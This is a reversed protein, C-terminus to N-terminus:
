GEAPIATEILERHSSNHVKASGYAPASSAPLSVVSLPRGLLEPLRLAMRPWAGQNVPEEQAWVLEADSPYRSLEARLNEHPVPYLQEVRVIATSNANAKARYDALDYYFKGSCLVVRRVASSNFNAPEGIMPQFAGSTFEATASTAAKARLISKPTFVILPKHRGSLAQWRLLHFYNAPTTPLAVTMNDQACLALFREIRASSHDPGQGEYGHPLLLVVSSKQGWKQEGSSIFEDIITQAGNMFDGFQAEWMVLADPRAVSYGYEFGMAAFESLLSDYVFFRAKGNDLKKLPTYDGGTHRDVLVAHRQGFTGRRTDQGVMRVPRGDQLLSGIALLEGTAWDISDEAVMTARRDLQPKLRPHVTFGEPINVQTDIIQKVADMTIATPVASHNVPREGVEAPLVTGPQAPLGAADRTETFARELQQQYDRLAAEAEEMTLDGRAILSETYLKRVSRRAEILDYMLPQTFSPNDTENHGRRRYCVMDIVVDKRFTERYAFSLKGVRAVAEPDDGNVHFIPAQIMRAVDTAYVSSRSYQPSTTFGVQNNVVIHVTGGTRYGRLQSLNLTEAVVGQGAFAADGHILVPLVTFGDESMDLVDQKARVVGETVPDSAELHSPNAVLSTPIRKGSAATFVGEAGLHYKVDGSGQTSKPDPNGEFEKFIQGYSKGIVNALVNLRGRHAMGIVAEDLGADAAESIVTDLLPILAEGGELSFRKQGVYKTQLFTEFAEAVNLKSLIRIQEDHSARTPPVEIRAQIWKREEPDQIHMYEIGVTRCYSDRLVGLIERLRRIPKGSFGGTAFERELDWLTLGHKIIDLDEHKRQVTELPNTDAMLHGRVRYAHILEQVRASRTVDDEHGYPFDRVWRVPEYPVRLSGFIKDYFEGEGLLLSHIIRLFDGSQAGQIIRHDYTSTLTVTKSIALKAMTEESAGQYAAPYEMAGVGVITGQGPMLRPVSHETGITGPNTLSITTSQFDAVTLKNNRAKRVVDEYATWFQRFDMEDAAKINPVLLQRSGDKAKLDIALGLNVHHPSALFPKGDEEAYAANMEPLAKLAQVVAYGILHTFSIKGGRGRQLHNNIVIRNDILLKAPVARVSTATPVSLSAAMNVATRAAAGRLKSVEADSPPPAVPGAQSPQSVQSVQAPAAAAAAPRAPAAPTAEPAAPAEPPTLSLGANQNGSARVPRYDAFFSWWARDVSAPDALYQQYLEDVLWENTGFDANAPTAGAETPDGARGNAASSSTRSPASPDAAALPTKSSM